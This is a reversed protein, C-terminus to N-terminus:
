CPAKKRMRKRKQLFSPCREPDLGNWSLSLCQREAGVAWSHSQCNHWAADAVVAAAAAAAVVAAVVDQLATM